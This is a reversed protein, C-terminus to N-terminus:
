RQDDRREQTVVDAAELLLTALHTVAKRRELASLARLCQSEFAISFQSKAQLALAPPVKTLKIM